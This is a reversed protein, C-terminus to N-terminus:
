RALIRDISCLVDDTSISTMCYQEKRYCPLKGNQSCPRCWLEKNELTESDALSTGGGTEVSTPGMIMVVPVNLAEAAHVMGTDSGIVLQANAIISLSTRLDTQGKLNLVNDNEVNIEDCVTDNEGGLIVISKNQHNTLNKIIDRYKSRTWVKRQWAAGPIIVILERDIDVRSFIGQARKKEQDTVTLSTAPVVNEKGLFPWLHKHFLSRQNFGDTFNNKHFQFLKFRDWRPKKYVCVKDKNIAKRMIKTRISNHLDIVLDYAKNIEKGLYILTIISENKNIKVVRNIHHHGEVLQSYHSLTMFDLRANPFRDRISKLPSTAQVIDGISSLRQVLITRPDSM